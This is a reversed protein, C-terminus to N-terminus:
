GSESTHESNSRFEWWSGSHMERINVPLFMFYIEAPSSGLNVNRPGWSLQISDQGDFRIVELLSTGGTCVDKIKCM